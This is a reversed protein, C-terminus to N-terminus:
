KRKSIAEIDIIKEDPVSNYDERDYTQYLGAGQQRTQPKFGVKAFGVGVLVFGVIDSVIGPTILLIAGMLQVLSAFAVDGSAIKGSRLVEFSYTLIGRFNVLMSVGLIFTVVIELLLGFIGVENAFIVTAFTECLLYILFLMISLARYM